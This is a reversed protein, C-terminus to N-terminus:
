RYGPDDAPADFVAPIRLDIRQFDCPYDDLVRRYEDAREGFIEPHKVWHQIGIPVRRAAGKGEVVRILEERTLPTDKM